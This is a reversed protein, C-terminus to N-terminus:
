KQDHDKRKTHQKFGREQVWDTSSDYEVTNVSERCGLAANAADFAFPLQSARAGM